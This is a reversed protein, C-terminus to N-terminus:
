PRPETSNGSPVNRGQPYLFADVIGFIPHGELPVPCMQREIEAKFVPHAIIRGGVKWICPQMCWLRMRDPSRLVEIIRGGVM